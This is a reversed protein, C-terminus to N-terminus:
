WNSPRVKTLTMIEVTPYPIKPIIKPNSKLDGIEDIAIPTRQNKIISLRKAFKKVELAFHNGPWFRKLTLSPPVGMM